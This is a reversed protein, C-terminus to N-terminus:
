IFELKSLVELAKKGLETDARVELNVVLWSMPGYERDVYIPNKRESLPLNAFIAFFREKM